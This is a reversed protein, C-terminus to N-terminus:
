LLLSSNNNMDTYKLYLYKSSKVLDLPVYLRVDTLFNLFLNNRIKQNLLKHLM